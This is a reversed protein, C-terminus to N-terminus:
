SRVSDERHGALDQVITDPAPRHLVQRAVGVTAEGTVERHPEGRAVSWPIMM